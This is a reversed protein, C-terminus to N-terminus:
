SRTLTAHSNEASPLNNATTENAFGRTLSAKREIRTEVWAKTCKLDFDKRDLEHGQKYLEDMLKSLKDVEATAKNIEAVTIQMVNDNATSRTTTNTWPDFVGPVKNLATYQQELRTKNDMAVNFDQRATMLKTSVEQQQMIIAQRDEEVWDICGDLLALQGDVSPPEAAAISEKTLLKLDDPRKM